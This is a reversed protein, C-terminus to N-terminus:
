ERCSRVRSFKAQGRGESDILLFSAAASALPESSASALVETDAYFGGIAGVAALRFLDTSLVREEVFYRYARSLESDGYHEDILELAAASDYLQMEFDPLVLQMTYDELSVSAPTTQFVRRPAGADVGIALFVLVCWM